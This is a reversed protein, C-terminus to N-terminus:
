SVSWVHIVARNENQHGGFGKEIMFIRRGGADVAVGGTQGCTHGHINKLFFQNPRWIAYPKVAWPERRGQAAQGLEDVDYFIVQREYPDCHYGRSSECSGTGPPEGYHNSGLGKLGLLIIARRGGSEVFGGGEWKDCMTFDPYDCRSKDGVNPGACEPFLIRYYLLPVASLNGSPNESSWPSFAFLTPGQSGHFAGRTKGTVLVREGLYQSAYWQPVSFLYDGAKNGHYPLNRPGVHYPGRPNSGNTNSFWITPHTRDVVGYWQDISGYLKDSKQSGRRPVYEIGSAVATDPDVSEVINGDFNAMGAIMRAVPLRLWNRTIVPRPIAVEAFEAQNLDFGIILLSGSGNNGRPSYTMGRAGWNFPNSLRFAGQYVLDAPTLRQSCVSAPFVISFLFLFIIVINTKDITKKLM